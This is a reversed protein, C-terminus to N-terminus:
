DMESHWGRSVRKRSITWEEEESIAILASYNSFPMAVGCRRALRLAGNRGFLCGGVCREEGEGELM